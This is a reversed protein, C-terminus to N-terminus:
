EEMAEKQIQKSKNMLLAFLQRVFDEDEFGLEKLKKIRANILEGERKKDTLPLKHEQKIEAIGKALSLRKAVLSLLENDANDIQARIAELEMVLNIM